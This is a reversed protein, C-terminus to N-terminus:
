LFLSNMQSNLPVFTFRFPVRFRQVDLLKVARETRKRNRVVSTSFAFSESSSEDLLARDTSQSFVSEHARLYYSSQM